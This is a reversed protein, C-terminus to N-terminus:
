KVMAGCSPCKKENSLRYGCYPCSNINQNTPNTYTSTTNTTTYNTTNGTTYNTTTTNNVTVKPKSSKAALGKIKFFIILGCIVFIIISISTLANATGNKEEYYKYDPLEKYDTYMDALEVAMSDEGKPGYSVVEITITENQYNDYGAKMIANYYYVHYTQGTSDRGTIDNDYRYEIWYYSEGDVVIEDGIDIIVADVISYGDENNKAKQIADMYEAFDSKIYNLQVKNDKKMNTGGFFMLLGILVVIVFVTWPSQRVTVRPGFGMPRPGMPRMPPPPGSPRSYSSSRSSSSSFSSHSSSGSARGGSFSGGGSHTPGHAM